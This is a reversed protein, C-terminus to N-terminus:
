SIVLNIEEVYYDISPLHMFSTYLVALRLRFRLFDRNLISMIGKGVEGRGIAFFSSSWARSWSREM